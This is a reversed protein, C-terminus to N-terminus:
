LMSSEAPLHQAQHNIMRWHSGELVYANSAMLEAGDIREVTLVFATSGTIVPRPDHPWILPPNHTLIMRWSEMVAKRGVLMPHGPHTCCIRRQRSWFNLMEGYDGTRMLRYFIDNTETLQDEPSM